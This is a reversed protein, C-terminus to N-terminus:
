SAALARYSARLNRSMALVFFGMAGLLTVRMLDERQTLPALFLVVAEVEVGYPTPTMRHRALFAGIRGGARPREAALAGAKSRQVTSWTYATHGVAALLALTPVSTHEFASHGLTAFCWATGVLDCALDVFGGRPNQTGRVRALKGDLCDVLFHVEFLVAGVVYSEGLFAFGAALALVLSTLSLGDPTIWRRGVMPPLLRLAIPDIVLVTWWADPDKRAADLDVAAPYRSTM